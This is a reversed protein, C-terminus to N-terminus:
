IKTSNPIGRGSGTDASDEEIVNGPGSNSRNPVSGVPHVRANIMDTYIDAMHESDIITSAAVQSSELSQGYGFTGSGNGMVNAVKAQLANYRAATVIAM